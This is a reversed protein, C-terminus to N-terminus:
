KKRLIENRPMRNFRLRKRRRHMKQHLRTRGSYAEAPSVLFPSISKEPSPEGLSEFNDDAMHCGHIDTVCFVGCWNQALSCNTGSVFYIVLIKKVNRRHYPATEKPM